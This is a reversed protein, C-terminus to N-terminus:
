ALDAHVQPYLGTEHQQQKGYREQLNEGIGTLTSGLRALAPSFFNQKPTDSKPKLAEARQAQQAKDMLEQRYRLNSEYDTFQNM